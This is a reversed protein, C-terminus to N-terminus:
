HTHVPCVRYCSIGLMEFEGPEVVYEMDINYFALHEPKIDISVTKKQGPKLTIRQFGKLEKVPRAVSSVEDKIYLQVVEDGEYKGINKISVSVKV